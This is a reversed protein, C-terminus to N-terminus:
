GRVKGVEVERSSISITSCRKGRGTPDSGEGSDSDSCHSPASCGEASRDCDAALATRSAALAAAGTAVFAAGARMFRRRGARDHVTLEDDLRDTRTDDNM